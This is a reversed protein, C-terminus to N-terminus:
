KKSSEVIREIGAGALTISVVVGLSFIVIPVLLEIPM